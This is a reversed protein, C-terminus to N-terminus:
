SGGDEEDDDVVWTAVVGGDAVCSARLPAHQVRGGQQRCATEFEVSATACVCVCGSVAAAVVVLAIGLAGM